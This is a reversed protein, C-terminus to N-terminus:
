EEILAEIPNLNSANKAPIYGFIVGIISSCAIATMVSLVSYVMQFSDNLTNFVFGILFSLALGAVGGMFCLLIAEVLFQRLINKQKAGIAMRIGIEKTRETVSVLMINM